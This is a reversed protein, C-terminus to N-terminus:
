RRRLDAPRGALSRLPLGAAPARRRRRSGRRDGPRRRGPPRSQGVVLARVDDARAGLAMRIGIERTRGAVSYSIVAYIGVAALALSLLGFVGLLASGLRQPVLQGGLEAEYTRLAAVPLTPDLRRIEGRVLSGVDTRASEGRVLLTVLGASEAGQALPLYVQPVPGDRLSGTRFNRGVGVVTRAAGAIDIRRGLASEGPWLRRAMAENLVVVPASGARDVRDDFERGEVLPIEMTASSIRASFTSRSTKRTSGAADAPGRGLVDGDVPRRFAPRARGLERRSRRPLLRGAGAARAPVGRGERRRLAPPRSGRVGAHARAAPLRPGDRPGAAPKARSPGGRRAAAPVALGPRRRARRPRRSRPSATSDRLSHPPRGSFSGGVGAVRAAPRLRARDRGFAPVRIRPGAHRPRARFRRAFLRRAAADEPDPRAVLERRAPGRRRRPNRAHRERDPAPTRPAVPERRDGPPRRDGTAPGGSPGAPPQRPQRLRDRADRRRRRRAAGPLVGPRRGPRLGRGGPADPPSHLAHRRRPRGPLSGDGPPHRGRRGGAGARDLRRAEPARLVSLWGWGRKQLDLRQFQGTALRPWAGIPVWLDPAGGFATGRFGEPAVGVVTFPAGNLRIAKGVIAPDSGFRSRWLRQGLVVLAEGSEEDAPALLRGSAARAGLVEFYNGSVIGGRIREAVAGVSLSMSRERWAALGDFSEGDDRRAAVPVVPLLADPRVPGRAGRAPGRGAASSARGRRHPQLDGHQRRHRAGPDPHGRGLLRASGRLTGLAFRLDHLLTSM